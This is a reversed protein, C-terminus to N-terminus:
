KYEVSVWCPFRCGAPHGLKNQPDSCSGTNAVAIVPFFKPSTKSFICTFPGSPHIWCPLFGRSYAHCTHGHVSRSWAKFPSGELETNEVSPVKIETDAAGEQPSARLYTYRTLLIKCCARLSAYIGVTCWHLPSPLVILLSSAKWCNTLQAKLRTLWFLNCWLQPLSEYLSIYNFPGILCFYSRFFLTLFRLTTPSNILHFVTSLAMFLSVSVLVSYFPTPLSLQNWAYVAVDGGHSPSGAPVSESPRSSKYCWLGSYVSVTEFHVTIAM